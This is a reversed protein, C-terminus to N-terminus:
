ARRTSCLRSYPMQALDHLHAETLESTLIMIVAPHLRKREGCEFNLHLDSVCLLFWSPPLFESSFFYLKGTVVKSYYCVFNECESFNEFLNLRHLQEVVVVGFVKIVAWM